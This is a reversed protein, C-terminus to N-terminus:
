ARSRVPPPASNPSRSPAPMPEPELARQVFKETMGPMLREQRELRRRFWRGFFDANIRDGEIVVREQSDADLNEFWSRDRGTYLCALAIEDGQAALLKECAGLAIQSLRITEATGDSRTVQIDAGAKLTELPTPGTSESSSM